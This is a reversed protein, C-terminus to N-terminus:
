ELCLSPLSAPLTPPLPSPLSATLCPSLSASSFSASLYPSQFSPFYFVPLCPPLFAHINPPLSNPLCPCVSAPFCATPLYSPLFTPICAIWYSLAFLCLSLFVLKYIFALFRNFVSISSFRRSITYFLSIQNFM